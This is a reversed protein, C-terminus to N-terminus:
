ACWLEASKGVLVCQAVVDPVPRASCAAHPSPLPKTTMTASPLETRYEVFLLVKLPTLM